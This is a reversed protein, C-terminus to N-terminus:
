HNIKAMLFSTQSIHWFTHSELIPDCNKDNSKRENYVESTTFKGAFSFLYVVFHTFVM